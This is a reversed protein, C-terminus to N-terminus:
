RKDALWADFQRQNEQIIKDVGAAELASLFEPLSEAPDMAGCNIIPTYQDVVAQVAAIETAVDTQVFTYGIAPSYRSKPIAADWEKMIQNKNIPAPYVAPWELINGWLGYKL